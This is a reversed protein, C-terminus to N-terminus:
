VRVLPLVMCAIGGGMKHIEHIDIEHCIIGKSELIKKTNPNNSPMLIEKNSIVLINLAFNKEIEYTEELDISTFGDIVAPCYNIRRILINRDIIHMGGLLHQPINSINAEVTGIDLNSFTKKVFELAPQNTRNKIYMCINNEDVVFVDAGELYSNENLSIFTKAYNPDASILLKALKEPEDKRISHKMKSLVIKDRFAFAVDRLFIMNSTLPMNGFSELVLVKINLSELKRVLGDFERLVKLPDPVSLYMTDKPNQQSIELIM